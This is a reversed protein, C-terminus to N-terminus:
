HEKTPMVFFRNACIVYGFLSNPCVRHPVMRSKHGVLHCLPKPLFNATDVISTDCAGQNTKTPTGKPRWSSSSVKGGSKRVKACTSSQRINSKPTASPKWSPQSKCPTHSGRWRHPTSVVSKTDSKGGARLM